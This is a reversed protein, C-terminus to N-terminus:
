WDRQQGIQNEDCKAGIGIQWSLKTENKVHAVGVHNTIDNHQRNKKYFIMGLRISWLPETENKVYIAGTADTVNKEHRTKM